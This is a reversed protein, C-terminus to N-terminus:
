KSDNEPATKPSKDENKLLLHLTLTLVTVMIIAAGIWELWNLADDFIFFDFLCAYVLGVYGFMAVIGSKENQNSITKSILSIMNFASTIFIWGFQEWSYSLLRSAQGAPLTTALYGITIMILAVVSYYFLIVSWHMKQMM